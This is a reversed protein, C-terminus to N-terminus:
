HPDSELMNIGRGGERECLCACVHMCIFVPCNTYTARDIRIARCEFFSSFVFYFPNINIFIRFFALFCVYTIFLWKSNGINNVTLPKVCIM